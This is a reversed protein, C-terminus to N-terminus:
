SRNRGEGIILENRLDNLPPEFLVPDLRDVTLWAARPLIPKHFAKV